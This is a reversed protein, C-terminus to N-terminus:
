HLCHVYAHEIGTLGRHQLGGDCTLQAQAAALQSIKPDTSLLSLM